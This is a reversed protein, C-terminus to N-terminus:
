RQGGADGLRERFDALLARLYYMDNTLDSREDESLDDRRLEHDHWDIRYEIAEVIFGLAKFNLDM